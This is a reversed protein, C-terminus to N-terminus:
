VAELNCAVRIQLAKNVDRDAFESKLFYALDSKITGSHSASTLEGWTM